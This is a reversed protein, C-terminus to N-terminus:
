TPEQKHHLQNRHTWDARMEVMHGSTLSLATQSYKSSVFCTTKSCQSLVHGKEGCGHCIPGRQNRKQPCGAGVHGTANCIKCQWKQTIASLLRQQSTHSGVKTNVCENSQHGTENCLYCNVRSQRDQKRQLCEWHGHGRGLCRKCVWEQYSLVRYADETSSYTGHSVTRKDCEHPVHGSEGCGGCRREKRPHPCQPARHGSDRCNTCVRSRPPM